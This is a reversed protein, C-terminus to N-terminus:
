ARAWQWRRETPASRRTAQISDPSSRLVPQDSASCAPSLDGSPICRSNAVARVLVGDAVVQATVDGGREAIGTAHQDGVVGAELLAAGARGPHLPLVRAGGLLDRVALQPHEQGLVCRATSVLAQIRPREDAHM